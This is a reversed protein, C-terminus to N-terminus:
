AKLSRQGFLLTGVRIVDAGEEIAIEFDGSTGMNLLGKPITFDRLKRLIGMEMRLQSESVDDLSSPLAMLGLCQSLIGMSHAEELLAPVEAPLCGNKSDESSVNVQIFFPRPKKAVREIEKARSLTHLVECSELLEPIKRSQLRGLFHWPLKKDLFHKQKTLMEELYSEGLGWLGLGSLLFEEIKEVNQGKTVAVLKIDRPQRGAKLCAAALRDEFERLSQKM